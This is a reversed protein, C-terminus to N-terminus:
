TEKILGDRLLSRVIMSAKEEDTRLHEVIEDFDVPGGIEYMYSLVAFDPGRSSTNEAHQTGLPTLILTSM